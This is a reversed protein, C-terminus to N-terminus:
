GLARRTDFPPRSPPQRDAETWRAANPTSAPPPASPPPPPVPQYAAPTVRTGDMDTEEVRRPLPMNDADLRPRPLPGEYVRPRQGTAHHPTIDDRTEEESNLLRRIRERERDDETM